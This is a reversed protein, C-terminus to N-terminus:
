WKGIPDFGREAWERELRDFIPTDTLKEDRNMQELLRVYLDKLKSM